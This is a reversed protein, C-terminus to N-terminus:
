LPEERGGEKRERGKREPGKRTASQLSITGLRSLTQGPVVLLESTYM